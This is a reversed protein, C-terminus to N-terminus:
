LIYLYNKIIVYAENSHQVRFVAQSDVKNTPVSSYKEQSKGWVETNADIAIWGEELLVIGAFLKILHSTKM